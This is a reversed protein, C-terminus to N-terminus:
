KSRNYVEILVMHDPITHQVANKDNVVSEWHSTAEAPSEFGEDYNNIDAHTYIEHRIMPEKLLGDESLVRWHYRKNVNM